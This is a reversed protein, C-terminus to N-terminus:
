NVRCPTIELQFGLCASGRRNKKRITLLDDIFVGCNRSEELDLTGDSLSHSRSKEENMKHNKSDLNEKEQVQRSSNM